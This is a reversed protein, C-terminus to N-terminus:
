KNELKEVKATLEKIAEVLIATMSDYHLTKYSKDDDAHLPLKRETVASPMVKEVDQALLGASAKNDKFYNFTVGKLQKIKDLAFEVPNINYKLTADSITTSYAIVDGEVHLDGDNELRMDVAGDLVFDHATTGIIIKDNSDRGVETVGKVLSGLSDSLHDRDISGDVYMDSDISNDAMLAATIADNAIHATDISGDVYHESDIADDAIHANDISGDVYHDSDIANAQLTATLVGTVTVGADSTELKTANDYYLRVIGDKDARIMVETADPNQLYFDEARISLNGTGGEKIISDGSSEDHYIELDNGTGFRAKVSDNFDVGTAGGVGAAADEFAPPSGAGTSTLVQGDNGTAIAVPNGSADYSIINGDTGSAMKALTIVDDALHATDISGDAYHESDIADDAIHANDISGDTYHESDIANDAIKAGTVADANIKATTVANDSLESVTISNAALDEAVIVDVGIKASTIANDAIHATDISGDVYHDSDISNDHLLNAITVKKSTGGDNILVEEAGDTTTLASLESVKTTAM